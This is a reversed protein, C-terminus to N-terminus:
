RIQEDIAVMGVKNGMLIFVLGVVALTILGTLNRGFAVIIVSLALFISFSYMIWISKKISCGMTVLRLAFHDDTKNFIPKKKKIRMIILFLTDYIPLSMALIPTLLAIKRDIPAYSINIAVMALLFGSFLSGTDGMYAKAPPYNYRLFGAHAGILATLIVCSFIDRNIFAIVLLSLSIIIVLGSTLGDMIDLLNLANTIFLLWVITILINVWGPLFTIKTFFGFVILIFIGLLQGSIKLVPRLNKIDDILGLALIVSSSLIIGFLKIGSLKIFFLSFLTAALFAMYIGIGGICPKGNKNRDPKTINFRASIKVTIPVLLLSLIFSCLAIYFLIM